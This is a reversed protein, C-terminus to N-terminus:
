IVDFIDRFIAYILNNVATKMILFYNHTVTQSHYSVIQGCGWHTKKAMTPRQGADSHSLQCIM